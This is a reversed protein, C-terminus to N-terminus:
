QQTIITIFHKFPFCYHVTNLDQGKLKFFFFFFSKLKNALQISYPFSCLPKSLRFFRAMIPMALNSFEPYIMLFSICVQPVDNSEKAHFADTYEHVAKMLYTFQIM